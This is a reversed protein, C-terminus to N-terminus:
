TRTQEKETGRTEVISNEKDGRSSEVARVSKSSENKIADQMWNPFTSAKKGAKEFEHDLWNKAM